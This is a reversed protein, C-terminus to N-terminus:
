NAEAPIEEAKQTLKEDQQQKGELKKVGKRSSDSRGQKVDFDKLTVSEKYLSRNHSFKMSKSDFFRGNKQNHLFEKVMAKGFETEFIELGIKRVELDNSILLQTRIKSLVEQNIAGNSSDEPIRKFIPIARRDVYPKLDFKKPLAPIDFKPVRRSDFKFRSFATFRGFPKYSSNTIADMKRQSMGSKDEKLEVYTKLDMAHPNKFYHKGKIKYNYVGLTKRFSLARRKKATEEAFKSVKTFSGRLFNM